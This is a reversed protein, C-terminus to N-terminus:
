NKKRYTNRIGLMLPLMLRKFIESLVRKGVQLLIEVRFKIIVIEFSFRDSFQYIM